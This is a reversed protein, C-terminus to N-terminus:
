KTRKIIDEDVGENSDKLDLFDLSVATTKSNGKMIWPASILQWEM